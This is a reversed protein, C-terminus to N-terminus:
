LFETRIHLANLATQIDEPIKAEIQLAKSNFPHIFAVSLAHLLCRSSVYSCKFKGYQYDGIIPHGLSSLHVRIQHTRGTIPYCYLLSTQPGQGCLKWETRAHLGNNAKVGWLTQGKYAAVKGLYNDIVGSRKSPIGDVIALYTKKVEKDRFKQIMAQRAGATKSFMLVGSTEKDLRHILELTPFFNRMLSLFVPDDSAVGAPKDFVFLDGDEYLIRKKDETMHSLPLSPTQVPPLYFKVEDGTGLGASAFREIRGNLQCSNKEIWRKLQSASYASGLKKRLFDILRTGSDEPFVKWHNM